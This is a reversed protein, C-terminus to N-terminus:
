ARENQTGGLINVEERITTSYASFEDKTQNRGEEAKTLDLLDNIVCVLYKSASHSKYLYERTEQDITGELAIKLYNIMATSLRESKMCQIQLFCSPLNIKRCCLIRKDGSKSSSEM